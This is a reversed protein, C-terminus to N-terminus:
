TNRTHFNGAVITNDLVLAPGSPGQRIGGGSGGAAVDDTNATITVNTLTATDPATTLNFLGGGRVAANGYITSNTM